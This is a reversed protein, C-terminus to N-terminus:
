KTPLFYRNRNYKPIDKAIRKAIKDIRELVHQDNDMIGKITSVDAVTLIWLCQLIARTKCIKRVTGIETTDKPNAAKGLIDHHAILFLCLKKERGNFKMYDLFDDVAQASEYPHKHNAPDKLKGVDHLLAAARIVKIMDPRDKIYSTENLLPRDTNLAMLVSYNHSGVTEYHPWVQPVYDLLLLEPPRKNWLSNPSDKNLAKRFEEDTPNIRLLEGFSMFWEKVGMENDKVEHLTLVHPKKIEVM